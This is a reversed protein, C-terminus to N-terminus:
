CEGCMDVVAAEPSELIDVGADKPPAGDQKGDLIGDTLSDTVGDGPGSDAPTGSDPAALDPQMGGDNAGAADLKVGMSDSMVGSDSHPLPVPIPSVNCGQVTLVALFAGVLYIGPYRTM